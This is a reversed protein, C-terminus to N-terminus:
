GRDLVFLAGLPVVTWLARSLPDAFLAQMPTSLWAGLEPSPVFSVFIAVLFGTQLLTLVVVSVTSGHGVMADGLSTRGLFLYTAAFLTVFVAAALAFANEGSSAPLFARVPLFSAMGLAMYLSAFTVMVKSRGATVGYLVMLIFFGVVLITDTRPPWSLLLAWDASAFSM